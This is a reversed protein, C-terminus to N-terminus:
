RVPNRTARASGGFGQFVEREHGARRVLVRVLVFVRALALEVPALALERLAVILGVRPPPHRVAAVADGVLTVADGVLAVALGVFTLALGVFTFPGGLRALALAELAELLAPMTVTGVVDSLLGLYVALDGVGLAARGRFCLGFLRRLVVPLEAARRDDLAVAERSAASPGSM